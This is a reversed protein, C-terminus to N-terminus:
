KTYFGGIMSNNVFFLEKRTQFRYKISQMAIWSSIYYKNFECEMQRGHQTKSHDELCSLLVELYLNREIIFISEIFGTITKVLM